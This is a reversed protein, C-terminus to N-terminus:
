VKVVVVSAYIGVCRYDIYDDLIGLLYNRRRSFSWKRWGEIRRSEGKLCGFRRYLVM